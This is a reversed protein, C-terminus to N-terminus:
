CNWRADWSDEVHTANGRPWTCSMSSQRPNPRPRAPTRSSPPLPVPKHEGWAVASGLVVIALAALTARLIGGRLADSKSWATMM